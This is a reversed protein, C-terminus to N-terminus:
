GPPAGNTRRHEEVEDMFQEVFRGLRERYLWGALMEVTELNILVMGAELAARSAEWGKEPDPDRMDGALPALSSRFATM